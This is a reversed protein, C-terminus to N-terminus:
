QESSGSSAISGAISKSYHHVQELLNILEMHIDHTVEAEPLLVVRKLHAIEAQAVLRKFRDDGQLLAGAKFADMSKLADALQEIELCVLNHMEMLEYKGERSLEGKVGQKKEVLKEALAEIVDGISELGKVINMLAFVERSETENLGSRSIKILYDSIHAELFDLKEERMSIGKIVSLKPFIVDRGPDNSIVPYLSAHVMKGAINGMRAVEARVYSLALVPTSLASEKLYWVAPILRTEEPDDPLIWYLLRDFPALFPLFFLSMFLNLLSHANAIQRPVELALKGAGLGESLPSIARILESFQSIFPLFLLVGAVNFLVQALAVRKAAHQMGSSALVATICTGINAGLLLAVGAELTLSGQLALTIVIGIFAGSSQMLATLGMGAVVGTLPNDLYQLLSLFPAYNQLPFVAESMVKLGFFLLGFGALAEGTFRMSESKGLSNLAFGAAFIMLAYDHLRFAVLQAMATTGIEAGLIVSLAQTSTMFRSHVLGVLIAIITSSSQVIMSTFAGSFLGYLRNGSIRSVLRRVREGSAKKLGGSLMRIGYLFLALGGVFVVAVATLSLTGTM